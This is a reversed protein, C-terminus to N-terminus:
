SMGIRTKLTALQNWKNGRTRACPMPWAGALLCAWFSRVFESNKQQILLVSTRNLGRKQLHCALALAEKFLSAYSLTETCRLERDLFTYLPKDPTASVGTELLSILDRDKPM